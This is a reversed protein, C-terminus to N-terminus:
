EMSATLSVGTQEFKKALSKAVIFLIFFPNRWSSTHLKWHFFGRNNGSLLLFLFFADPGLYISIKLEYVFKLHDFQESLVLYYSGRIPNPNNHHPQPPNSGL